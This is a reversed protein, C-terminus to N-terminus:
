AVREIPVPKEVIRDYGRGAKTGIHAVLFAVIM